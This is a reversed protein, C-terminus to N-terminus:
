IQLVFCFVTLVAGGILTNCLDFTQEVKATSIVDLATYVAFM